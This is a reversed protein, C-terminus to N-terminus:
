EELSNGSVAMIRYTGYADHFSNTHYMSVSETAGELRKKIDVLLRELTEMLGVLREHAYLPPGNVSFIYPGCNIYAQQCSGCMPSM